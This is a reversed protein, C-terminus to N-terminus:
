STRTPYRRGSLPALDFPVSFSDGEVSAFADRNCAGPRPAFALVRVIAVM